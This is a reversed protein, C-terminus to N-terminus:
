ACCLSRGLHCIQLQGPQPDAAHLKFILQGPTFCGELLCHLEWVNVSAALLHIRSITHGVSLALNSYHRLCSYEHLQLYMAADCRNSHKANLGVQDPRDASTMNAKQLASMIAPIRAACEPHGPMDHQSGASVAYILKPASAPGTFDLSAPAQQCITTQRKKGAALSRQPESVQLSWLTLHLPHLTSNSVQSAM